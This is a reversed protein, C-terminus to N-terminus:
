GTQALTWAYQFKIDGADSWIVSMVSWGVFVGFLKAEVSLFPVRREQASHLLLAYIVLVGAIRAPTTGEGYGTVSRLEDLPLALAFLWIAVIPYKSILVFLIAGM